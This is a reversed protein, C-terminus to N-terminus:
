GDFAYEFRESPDDFQVLKPDFAEPDFSGGLWELMEAHDEHSPDGITELLNSYGRPGGCDEPPCARKGAVCDPFATGKQLPLVKEMQVKHVWGDGFDYEYKATRSQLTFLAAIPIRWGPLTPEEGPFLDESPIGICVKEGTLPLDVTFQHLHCDLWGMSDQIAVHLDWFSYTCPVLIRRWVPPKVELLTIKFQLLHDLKKSM